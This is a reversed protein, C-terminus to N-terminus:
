ILATRISEGERLMAPWLQSAEAYTINGETRRRRKNTGKRSYSKSELVTIHVLYVYTRPHSSTRIGSCIICCILTYQDAYTNKDDNGERDGDCNEDDDGGMAM